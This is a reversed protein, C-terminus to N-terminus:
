DFLLRIIMISCMQYVTYSGNANELLTHVIWANVILALLLVLNCTNAMNGLALTMLYWLVVEPVELCQLLVDIAGIPM